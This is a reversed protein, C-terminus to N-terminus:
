KWLLLIIGLLIAIIVSIVFVNIDKNKLKFNRNKIVYGFYIAILVFIFISISNLLLVEILLSISYVPILLNYSFISNSIESCNECKDEKNFRIFLYGFIIALFPFLFLSIWSSVNMYIEKSSFLNNMTDCIIVIPSYIIFASSNLLLKDFLNNIFMVVLSLIFTYGIMNIIGDSNSNNRTYIFAFLIILVVIYLLLLFYYPWYYSMVFMHENTIIMLWSVIFSITVPIIVEIICIFIKSLFIKERKIPLSYMQDLTIKNMKFGFEFPIILTALTAALFALTGFPSNNTETIREGTEYHTWTYTFDNDYLSLFMILAFIFSIILISFLRKNFYYKLMNKM